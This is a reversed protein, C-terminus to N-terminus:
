NRDPKAMQRDNPCTEINGDIYEDAYVYGEAIGDVVLNGYADDGLGGLTISSWMSFWRLTQGPKDPDPISVDLQFLQDWSNNGGGQAPFVKDIWARAVIVTYVDGNEDEIEVTRYTKYQDYWVEALINKKYVETLTELRDCDGAEWCDGGALFERGAWLTSSSEICVQNQQVHLERSADVDHKSTGPVARNVQAEPDAGKPISLDGLDDGKLIPMTVANDKPDLSLDVDNKLFDRLNLLGAELEALGEEDDNEFNSFLFAGLEGLEKPAEPPPKACGVMLLCGILGFRNM